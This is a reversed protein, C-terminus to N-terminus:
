LWQCYFLFVTLLMKIVEQLGTNINSEMQKCITEVSSKRRFQLELHSAWAQAPKGRTQGRNHISHYFFNFQPSSGSSYWFVLKIISHFFFPRSWSSVEVVKHRGAGSGWSDMCGYACKFFPNTYTCYCCHIYLTLQLFTYPWNFSYSNTDASTEDGSRMRRTYQKGRAISFAIRAPTPKPDPVSVIYTCVM